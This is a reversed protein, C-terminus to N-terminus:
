MARSPMKTGSSTGQRSSGWRLGRAYTREPCLKTACPTTCIATSHTRQQEGGSRNTRESDGSSMREAEANCQHGDGCAVSRVRRVHRVRRVRRVRRVVRRFRRVRRVVRRVRRARRIVRRVRIPRLKLGARRRLRGRRRLRRRRVLGPLWEASRIVSPVFGVM